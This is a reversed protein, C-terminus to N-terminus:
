GQAVPVIAGPVHHSSIIALIVGAMKAPYQIVISTSYGCADNAGIAVFPKVPVMSVRARCYGNADLEAIPLTVEYTSM